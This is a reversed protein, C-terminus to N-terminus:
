QHFVVGPHHRSAELVGADDVPMPRLLVAYILDKLM